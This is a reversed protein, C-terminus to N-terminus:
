TKNAPALLPGITNENAKPMAQHSFQALSFCGIIPWHFLCTQVKNAWHPKALKVKPYPNNHSYITGGSCSPMVCQHTVNRYGLCIVSHRRGQELDDYFPNDEAQVPQVPQRVNSLMQESMDHGFRHPLKEYERPFPAGKIYASRNLHTLTASCLLFPNHYFM